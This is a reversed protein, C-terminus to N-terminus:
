DSRRQDQVDTNPQALVEEGEERSMSPKSAKKWRGFFREAPSPACYEVRLLMRAQLHLFFGFVFFMAILLLTSEVPIKPQQSLLAFTGLSGGGCMWVSLGNLFQTRLKIDEKDFESLM